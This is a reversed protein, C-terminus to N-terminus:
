IPTKYNWAEELYTGVKTLWGSPVTTLTNEYWIHFHATDHTVIASFVNSSFAALLIPLFLYASKNTRM